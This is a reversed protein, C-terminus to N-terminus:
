ECNRVGEDAVEAVFATSQAQFVMGVQGSGAVNQVWHYTESQSVVVRLVFDSEDFTQFAQDVPAAPDLGGMFVATAHIQSQWEAGLTGGLDQQSFSYEQTVMVMLEQSSDGIPSGTEPDCTLGNGSDNASCSLQSALREKVTEIAGEAAQKSSYTESATAVIENNGRDVINFYWDGNSAELLEYSEDKQSEVVVNNLGKKASAEVTYGESKLLKKGNAARLRFYFQEDAGEFLEFGCQDAWNDMKPTSALSRQVAGMGKEAASKSSYVESTSIVKNNGAVVNFYWEGSVKADPNTSAPELDFSAEEIGNKLLSVIGREAGSRSQYGESRLLNEGNSAELRFYFQDDKASRYLELQAQRVSDGTINDTSSDTDASCAVFAFCALSSAALQLLRTKM